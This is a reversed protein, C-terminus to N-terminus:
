GTTWSTLMIRIIKLITHIKRIAYTFLLINLRKTIVSGLFKPTYIENNIPNARLTHKLHLKLQIKSM